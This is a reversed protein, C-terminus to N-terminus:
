NGYVANDDMEDDDILIISSSLPFRAASADVDRWWTRNLSARVSLYVSLRVSPRPHFGNWLMGVPNSRPLTASCFNSWAFRKLAMLLLLFPLPVNYLLDGLVIPIDWRITLAFRSLFISSRKSWISFCFLISSSFIVFIIFDFTNENGCVEPGRLKFKCVLRRFIINTFWSLLSRSSRMLLTCGNYSLFIHFFSSLRLLCMTFFRLLNWGSSFKKGFECDQFFLHFCFLLMVDWFSGCGCVFYYIYYSCAHPCRLRM